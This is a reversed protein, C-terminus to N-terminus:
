RSIRPSEILGSNSNSTRTHLDPPNLDQCCRFNGLNKQYSNIFRPYRKEQLHQISSHYQRLRSPSQTEETTERQNSSQLTQSKKRNAGAKYQITQFDLTARLTNKIYRHHTQSLQTRRLLSEKYESIDLQAVLSSIKVITRNNQALFEVRRLIRGQEENLGIQTLSISRSDDKISSFEFLRNTQSSSSNESIQKGSFALFPQLSQDVKIYSCTAHIDFFSFWDGPYVSEQKRGQNDIKFHIPETQNNVERCDKEGRLSGDKMPVASVRNFHIIKKPNIVMIIIEKFDEELSKRLGKGQSAIPNNKLLSAAKHVLVTWRASIGLLM